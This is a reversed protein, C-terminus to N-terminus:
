VNVSTDAKNFLLVLQRTRALIVLQQAHISRFLFLVCINLDIYFAYQM